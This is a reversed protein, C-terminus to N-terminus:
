EDMDGRQTASYLARVDERSGDMEPVHTLLGASDESLKLTGSKTRAMPIGWDAHGILFPVDLNPNNLSRKSVGSRVSEDYPDGNRDWMPFKVDYRAAYGNWEYYCGAATGNPRARMEINGQDFSLGLREPVGRWGLRERRRLELEDMGARRVTGPEAE